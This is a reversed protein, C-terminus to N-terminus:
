KDFFDSGAFGHYFQYLYAIQANQMWELYARGTIAGFPFSIIIGIDWRIKIQGHEYGNMIPTIWFSHM